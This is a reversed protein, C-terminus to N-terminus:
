KSDRKRRILQYVDHNQKTLTQVYGTGEANFLRTMDIYKDKNGKKLPFVEDRRAKVKDSMPSHGNPGIGRLEDAVGDPKCWVPVIESCPPYGLGTWMIYQDALMGPKIDDPNLGPRAGEIVITATSKYRPIFDQDIVWKDGTMAFDKKKLDHYFSRSVTETLLEPTIAHEQAYPYLLCEANAERVFGMGENKRGAHSYNTRILIGDKADKLDFRTYSHNNCEFFAGNGSADIVGFNAEVGMPRPLTDLLKAFDDVSRCSRLAITMLYGERDMKKQPVNDDKLNYSATNMVAFGVDNMGMWAQENRHDNANFLAVYAFSGDESPIYEVKNDITSTDRHKWLLPRGDPTAYAAVIASTCSLADASYLSIALILTFIKFITTM